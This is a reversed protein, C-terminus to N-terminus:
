FEEVGGIADRRMIHRIRAKLEGRSVHSFPKKIYEDAGGELSTLRDVIIAEEVFFIIPISSIKRNTRVERILKYGSRDPLQSNLLLIDPPYDSLLESLADSTNSLVRVLYGEAELDLKLLNTLSEDDDVILISAKAM